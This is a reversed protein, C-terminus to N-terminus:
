ALAALIAARRAQETGLFDISGLRIDPKISGHFDSGGTVLLRRKEAQTLYFATTQADHYSSFVEIGDLPLALLKELLGEQVGINAGPHALVALGGADHIIRIAEEATIYPIPVHAPKGPACLEWYFGVLPRKEWVGGPFLPQLLPHKRNNPERLVAEAIMEASVVGNRAQGLVANRDFTIDLCEVANLQRAASEQRLRLVSQELWLLGPSAIDIGYGLIHLQLTGAMCDLEVGPLIRVGLQAGRWICEPVGSVANHDTLAALTLGEQSCLEALGRPSIEGDLSISSHMHLDMRAM